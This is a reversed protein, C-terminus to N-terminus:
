STQTKLLGDFQTLRWDVNGVDNGVDNTVDNVIANVVVKVIDNIAIFM